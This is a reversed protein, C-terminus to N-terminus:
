FDLSISKLTKKLSITQIYSFINTNICFYISDNKNYSTALGDWIIVFPGIYVSCRYTATIENALVDYERKKHVEAEKINRASTIGVEINLIKKYKHNFVIM